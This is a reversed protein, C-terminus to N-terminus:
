MRLYTLLANWLQMLCARLTPQRVLSLALHGGASTGCAMVRDVDPEMDNRSQKLAQGFRGEQVWCLADKVDTMPGELVNSGPCLRYELSLVIWGRALCNEIQDRNNMSADGVVFGGGHLMLLVPAHDYRREAPLHVDTPIDIGDISKYTLRLAMDILNSDGTSWPTHM